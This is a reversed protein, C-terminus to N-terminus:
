RKRKKKRSPTKTGKKPTNRKELKAVKKEEKEKEKQSALQMQYQEYAQKQQEQLIAIQKKYANYNNMIREKHEEEFKNASLLNECAILGNQFDGAYFAVSGFEDMMKWDYVDRAIFLIDNEPYPITTGIKSYIWALRPKDMARYMKSIEYLPEARGPRYNWADLYAEKVVEFDNGQVGKLIAVRFKAFFVEEEWGGMEVRKAYAEEAEPWQQSDFYSQALYFQYRVNNPEYYPDDENTLASLLVEADNSYKEVPDIGVNRAGLTRANVYYDSPGWKIIQQQEPPITTLEAFEHLVGSYQWGMGTKFIQNRFWSFDPRGLRLSYAHHTMEKPYEFVGDIKDDADIMWAYTAKEDCNRLAETRSKGFGKWDSLYVEGPIGKEKMFEKILEPTGDDSGTDTIDYRDIYPIMSELMEKIIHSENKVIACLTVTVGDPKIIKESM